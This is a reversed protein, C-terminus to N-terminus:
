REKRMVRGRQPSSFRDVAGERCITIDMLPGSTCSFKRILNLTNIIPPLVVGESAVYEHMALVPDVQKLNEGDQQDLQTRFVRKSSSVPM